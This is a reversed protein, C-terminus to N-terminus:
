FGALTFRVLVDSLYVEGFCKRNTHYYQILITYLQETVTNTQLTNSKPSAAREAKHLTASTATAPSVVEPSRAATGVGPHLSGKAHEPLCSHRKPQPERRENNSNAGWLENGDTAMQIEGERPATGAAAPRHCCLGASTGAGAGGGALDPPTPPFHFCNNM